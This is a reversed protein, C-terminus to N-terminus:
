SRSLLEQYVQWQRDIGAALSFHRSVHQRAAEGLKRRLEEDQALRTLAEALAAPDAPPVILGSEGDVALGRNGGIDTMITAKGLFLAELLVKSLGEGRVSPLVSIHGAQVLSLVDRRFGAFRFRDAYPSGVLAKQTAPGDLGRGILLFYLPLSPSLHQTAALLYPLGKMRRANAVMTVVLAEAPLQFQALDTAEIDQYWAPDHGKHVVVAKSSDFFLQRAFTAKVAGSVCTICDVRPHLHTLYSSPDYWHIHGSYGRYTVVKVPLGSAARIGNIIARNNFLHLIDYQGSQLEQRIFRSESKRFKHQPHFDIVRMGASRFREVYPAQGQTMITVEAGRRHLGILLEGEPRVANWSDQYSSIILVKM